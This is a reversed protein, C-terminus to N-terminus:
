APRALQNQRFNYFNSGLSGLGGLLGGFAQFRMGAAESKGALGKLRAQTAAIRGEALAADASLNHLTANLGEIRGGLAVGAAQRFGARRATEDQWRQETELQAQQESAALLFDLPSGTAVDAGSGANQANQAAMKRTFEDRSRRLNEQAVQSNVEVESRLANANEAATQAAAGSQAAQLQSQLALQNAQQTAQQVGAQANLTSFTEQTKAASMTASYQLGTGIAGLILGVTGM